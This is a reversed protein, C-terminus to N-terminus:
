YLTNKKSSLQANRLQSAVDKYEASNVDGGLQALRQSMLFQGSPTGAKVEQYNRWKGYGEDTGGTERNFRVKMQEEQQQQKNYSDLVNKGMLKYMNQSTKYFPDKVIKEAEEAERVAKEAEYGELASEKKSKLKMGKFGSKGTNGVSIIPTGGYIRNYSSSISQPPQSRQLSTEM